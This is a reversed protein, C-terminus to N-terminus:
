STQRRLAHVSFLEAPDTWAEIASWGARAALDHFGPITYKYSNETHISEGTRFRFRRGAVHVDQTMRSVLHMEIRSEDENWIARHDFAYVDLDGGLERNIRELMNLNFAATVGEADDYAAELTARDKVLDVGVILVAGSGLIAGFRALLPEAEDPRFNGVTSGPFFGAHAGERLSEPLAFSETFDAAVPAIALNPFDEGLRRAQESLFDESVDVPVYAALDPRRSLLRRLKLSSGSGFEVLIAREPLTAAIAAGQADLISLETRTPYYEPLGTIREFLASGAADYFYKASLAKPSAALGTWVDELFRTDGHPQAIPRAGEFRPKVTM